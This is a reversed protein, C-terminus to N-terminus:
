PYDSAITIICAGAADPELYSGKLVIIIAMSNCVDNTERILSNYTIQKNQLFYHELYTRTHM